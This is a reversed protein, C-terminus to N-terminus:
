VYRLWSAEQPALNEPACSSIARGRGASSVRLGLCVRIGIGSDRGEGRFDKDLQHRLWIPCSALPNQNTAWMTQLSELAEDREAKPNLTKTTTKHITLTQTTRGEGRVARGQKREKDQAQKAQATSYSLEYLGSSVIIRFRPKPGGGVRM